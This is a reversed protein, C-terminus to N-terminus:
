KGGPMDADPTPLNIEPAPSDNEPKTEAPKSEFPKAINGGEQAIPLKKGDALTVELVVMEWKDGDKRATVHAKARGKPGQIEWRIEAERPEKRYSTARSMVPVIPKGLEQQLGEDANIKETAMQFVELPFSHFLWAGIGGLCGCCLIVCAILLTPIFWLWNRAWWGRQPPSQFQQLNPDLAAQDLNDMNM